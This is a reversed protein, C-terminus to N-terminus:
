FIIQRAFNSNLLWPEQHLHLSELLDNIGRQQSAIHVQIAPDSNGHTKVLFSLQQAKQADIEFFLESKIKRLLDNSRTGAYKFLDMITCSGDGDVDLPSKIWEFLYLLFVNAMWSDVFPAGAVTNIPQSLQITRSLSPNLNTAGIYVLPPASSAEIFNFVGAFCQGFAIFGGKIGNIGRVARGLADPSIHGHKTDIGSISGHGTVIVFVQEFGSIKALENSLQDTSFTNQTIGVPALYLAAQPQDNFCYINKDSM